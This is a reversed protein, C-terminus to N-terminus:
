VQSARRGSGVAALMWKEGSPVHCATSGNPYHRVDISRKNTPNEIWRRHCENCLYLVLRKFLHAIIYRDSQDELKLFLASIQRRIEDLGRDNDAIRPPMPDAVADIRAVYCRREDLTLSRSCHDCNFLEM